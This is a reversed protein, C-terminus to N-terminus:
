FDPAKPAAMASWVKVQEGTRPDVIAIHIYADPSDSNPFYYQVYQSGRPDHKTYQMFVFNEEVTEKISPNKWIDRNLVQCDFISPDQINVLLWKEEQKGHQRAQNWSLDSMLEFPPRYMEALMNSRADRESAGATARALRDRRSGESEDTANWISNTAVQNFVGPRETAFTLLVM